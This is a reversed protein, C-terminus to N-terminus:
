LPGGCAFRLRLRGEFNDFGNKIKPHMTLEEVMESLQETKSELNKAFRHYLRYQIPHRVSLWSWSPAKVVTQEVPPKNHSGDQSITNSDVFWALCRAANSRWIGLVCEDSLTVSFKSVIGQLAILRDRGWTLNRKTYDQVAKRWYWYLEEETAQGLGPSPWGLLM